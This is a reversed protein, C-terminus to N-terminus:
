GLWRVMLLSDENWGSQRGAWLRILGVATYFQRTGDYGEVNPPDTSTSTFLYLIRASSERAHTAAQEVLM